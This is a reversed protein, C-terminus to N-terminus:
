IILDPNGNHEEKKREEEKNKSAFRSPSIPIVL